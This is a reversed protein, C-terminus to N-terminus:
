CAKMHDAIWNFVRLSIFGVFLLMVATTLMPALASAAPGVKEM